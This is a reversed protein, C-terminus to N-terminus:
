TAASNKLEFRARHHALYSALAANPKRRLNAPVGLLAPDERPLRASVLMCGNNDFSILEADFLADLTALLPLGNDPDLREADTCDRWPKAHSARVTSLVSSGTVACAGGWKGLLQRRFEGQGVRADVMASRTTPNTSAVIDQLDEALESERLFGRVFEEVFPYNRLTIEYCTPRDKMRDFVQPVDRSDVPKGNNLWNVRRKFGGTIPSPEHFPDGVVQALYIHRGEHPVLAIDGVSMERLYNWLGVREAAAERRTRSYVAAILDRMEVKTLSPDLTQPADQWGVILQESALAEPVRDQMGPKIRVVFVRNREPNFDM